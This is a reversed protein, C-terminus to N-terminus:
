LDEWDGEDDSFESEIWDEYECDLVDWIRKTLGKPWHEDGIPTAVLAEWSWEEGSGNTVIARGGVDSLRWGKEDCIVQCM